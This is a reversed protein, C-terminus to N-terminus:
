LAKSRKQGKDEVAKLVMKEMSPKLPQSIYKFYDLMMIKCQGQQEMVYGIDFCFYYDFGDMTKHETAYKFNFGSEILDEKSTIHYKSKAMFDTLIRRNKKLINVIPLILDNEVKLQRNNNASKCFVNCFKQDARGKLEKGCELCIDKTPRAQM